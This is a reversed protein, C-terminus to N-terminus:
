LLSILDGRRVGTAATAMRPTRVIVRALAQLLERAGDADVVL